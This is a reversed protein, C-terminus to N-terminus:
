FQIDIFDLSVLWGYNGEAAIKDWDEPRGRTYIMYNIVSTGGVAKGRPWFCRENTMGSFLIIFLVVFM